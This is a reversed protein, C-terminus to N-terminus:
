DANPGNAGKRSRDAMEDTSADFVDRLRAYAWARDSETMLPRTQDARREAGHDAEWKSVAVCAYCMRPLIRPVRSCDTRLRGELSNQFFIRASDRM